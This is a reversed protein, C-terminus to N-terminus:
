PLVRAEVRRNRPDLPHDPLALGEAGYGKATLRAAPVGHAVLFRVVSEARALSLSLNRAPSGSADTHGAIELHKSSLTPSGLLAAFPILQAQAPRTLAASGAMFSVKLDCQAGCSDAAAPANTAVPTVPAPRTGRPPLAGSYLEFGRTAPADDVVPCAGSDDRPEGDACPPPGSPPLPPKQATHKAAAAAADPTSLTASPPIARGATAWALLTVAALGAASARPLERKVVPAM